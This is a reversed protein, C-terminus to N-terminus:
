QNKIQKPNHLSVILDFSQFRYLAVLLRSADRIDNKLCILTFFSDFRRLSLISHSYDCDLRALDFDCDAYM